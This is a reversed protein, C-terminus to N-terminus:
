CENSKRMVSDDRLVLDREDLLGDLRKHIFRTRWKGVTQKIVGLRTAVETNSRGSAAALIIRARQALAQNTKPRRAWRELTEREEESLTLSPIPRGTRM